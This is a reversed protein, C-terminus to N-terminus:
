RLVSTDRDAATAFCSPPMKKYEAGCTTCRALGGPNVAFGTSGCPRLAEAIQGDRTAEPLLDRDEDFAMLARQVQQERATAV